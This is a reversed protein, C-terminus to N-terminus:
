RLEWDAAAADHNGYIAVDEGRLHIPTRDGSGRWAVEAVDGRLRIIKGFDADAGYGAVVWDGVEFPSPDDEPFLLLRAEAVATALDAARWTGPLPDGTSLGANYVSSLPSKRGAVNLALAEGVDPRDTYLLVDALVAVRDRFERNLEVPPLRPPIPYTFRASGPMDKLMRFMERATARAADPDPPDRKSRLSQRNRM